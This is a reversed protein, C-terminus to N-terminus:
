FLLTLTKTYSGMLLYDKVEKFYTIKLRLHDEDKLTEFHTLM